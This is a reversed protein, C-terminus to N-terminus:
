TSEEREQLYRLREPYVCGLRYRGFHHYLAMALGEQNLFQIVAAYHLM